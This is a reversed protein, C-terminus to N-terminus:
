LKSAAILAEFLEVHGTETTVTFTQGNNYPRFEAKYKVRAGASATIYHTFEVTDSGVTRKYWAPHREAFDKVAKEHAAKLNMRSVCAESIAGIGGLLRREVDKYAGDKHADVNIREYEGGNDKASISVHVQRLNKPSNIQRGIFLHAGPHNAHEYSLFFNDSDIEGNQRVIKWGRYELDKTLTSMSKM